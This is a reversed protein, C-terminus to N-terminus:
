FNLIDDKTGFEHDAGASILIYSDPRNPWLQPPSTSSYISQDVIKYEPNYFYTGPLGPPTTDRGLKHMSDTSGDFGDPLKGLRLIDINDAYNYISTAPSSPSFTKSTTNARYYLIPTGAMKTTTTGGTVISIKKVGFVDCLVFNPFNKDLINNNFLPAISPNSPNYLGDNAGGPSFNLRFVNTKALELYPGRRADLTANTYLQVGSLNLGERNWISDPYFGRLDWGLLAETLKQAGCYVSPLPYLGDDSNSLPYDGYDQKFADLAMDITAFQAKQATEKAQRRVMTISPLLIGLMLSIIALVILMEVLTFAKSNNMVVTREVCENAEPLNNGTNDNDSISFM